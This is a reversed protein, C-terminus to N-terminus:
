FPMKYEPPTVGNMRLFPVTQGLTWASHEYSLAALRLAPQPPQGYIAVPEKVQAPPHGAAASEVFSM